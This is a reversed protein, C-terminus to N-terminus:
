DFTEETGEKGNELIEKQEKAKKKAIKKLQEREEYTIWGGYKKVYTVWNYEIDPYVYWFLKRKLKAVNDPFGKIDVVVNRGDAYECYFDAVYTIPRVTTGCHKFKPQLEFSKQLEYRKITGDEVGPLVVECYYRMEVISDFTIGNYTRCSADKDVNYKTRGM